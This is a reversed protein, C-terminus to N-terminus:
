TTRQTKLKVVETGNYYITVYIYLNKANSALKITPNYAGSNEIAQQGVSSDMSWSYTFINIYEKSSSLAFLNTKSWGVTYKIEITSDTKENYHEDYIGFRYVPISLTAVADSNNVKLTINATGGEGKDSSTIVGDSITATTCSWILDKAEASPEKNNEGVYCVANRLDLSTYSSGNGSLNFKALIFKRSLKSTDFSVSKVPIYSKVKITDSVGTAIITATIDVSGDLLSTVVGDSDVTAISSDSSTWIIAANDYNETKATLSLPTGYVVKVQEDIYSTGEPVQISVKGPDVEIYHVSASASYTTGNKTVILQLTNTTENASINVNTSEIDIAKSNEEGIQEGNLLWKFTAASSLLTSESTDIEVTIGKLDTVFQGAIATELIPQFSEKTVNTPVAVTIFTNTITQNLEETYASDFRSNERVAKVKYTYEVGTKVSSDVYSNTESTLTETTNSYSKEITYSTAGNVGDWSLAMGEATKALTFNQPTSLKVTVTRVAARHETADEDESTLTITYDGSSPFTVTKDSVTVGESASVTYDKNTADDPTIVAGVTVSDGMVYSSAFKEEFAITQVKVKTRIAALPIIEASYSYVLNEDNTYNIFHVSYTYQPDLGEFTLSTDGSAKRKTVTYSIDRSDVTEGTTNNTIWSKLLYTGDNLTPYSWSIDIKTASDESNLSAKVGTVNKLYYVINSNDLSFSENGDPYSTINAYITVATYFTEAIVQDAGDIKSYIRFSVNTTGKEIDSQTYTFSKNEFDNDGAWEIEANSYAKNNTTDWAQFGLSKKQIANYLINDEKTLNKWDITVSFSGTGENLWDLTVSATNAGDAKVTLETNGTAVKNNAGEDSYGDVTVLYTGVLVEEFTIESGKTFASTYNVDSHNNNQLTVKYAEITTEAPLISRLETADTIKLTVTATVYSSDTDTNLDAECGFLLFVIITFILLYKKNM